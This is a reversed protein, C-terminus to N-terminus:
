GAGSYRKALVARKREGTAGAFPTGAKDAVVKVAAAAPNKIGTLKASALEGAPDQDMVRWYVIHPATLSGVLQLMGGRETRPLQTSLYQRGQFLVPILMSPTDQFYQLVDIRDPPGNRDRWCSDLESALMGSVIAEGDFNVDVRTVNGAAFDAADIEHLFLDVYSGPDIQTSLHGDLYGIQRYQAVWGPRTEVTEAILAVSGSNITNSADTFPNAGSFQLMLSRSKLLETAPASEDKGRLRDDAFPIILDFEVDRAVGAALAEDQRNCPVSAWHIIMLRDIDLGSAHVYKDIDVMAAVFPQEEWPITANGADEIELCFHLILRRLKHMDPLGRLPFNAQGGAVWNRTDLKTTHVQATRAM